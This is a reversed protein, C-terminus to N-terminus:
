RKGFYRDLVAARDVAKYFLYGGIAAVVFIGLTVLPFQVAFPLGFAYELALSVTTGLALSYLALGLFVSVSRLKWLVWAFALAPVANLLDIPGLSSVSNALLVGLFQGLVAPWGMIPVLGLLVNSVRFNVSGYSLQGFAVSVAAYTAAYLAATALVFNRNIKTDRSSFSPNSDPM